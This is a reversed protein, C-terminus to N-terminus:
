LELVTDDTKSNDFIGDNQEELKDLEDEFM